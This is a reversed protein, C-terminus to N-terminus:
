LNLSVSKYFITIDNFYKNKIFIEDYVYKILVFLTTFKKVENENFHVSFPALEGDKDKNSVHFYIGTVEQDCFFRLELDVLRMIYPHIEACVNTPTKITKLKKGNHYQFAIGLSMSNKVLLELFRMTQTSLCRHQAQNFNLSSM